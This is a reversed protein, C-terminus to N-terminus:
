AAMFRSLSTIRGTLRQVEKVMTPNKMELIARCKDPNVEIGQRTLIFGLFKGAAVAFACKHPKLRMNHQRLRSLITELESLLSEEEQTKVLMDDIYAEM